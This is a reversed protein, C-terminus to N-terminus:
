DENHRTSNELFEGLAAESVRLGRPGLRIAELRGTEILTYVYRKSCNLREAVTHVFLLRGIKEHTM